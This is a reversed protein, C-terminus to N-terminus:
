REPNRSPHSDRVSRSLAPTWSNVSNEDDIVMIDNSVKDAVDQFNLILPFHSTFGRVPLFSHPQRSLQFWVCNKHIDTHGHHAAEVRCVFYQFTVWITFDQDKGHMFAFNQPLGNAM